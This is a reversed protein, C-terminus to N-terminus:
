GVLLHNDADLPGLQALVIENGSDDLVHAFAADGGRVFPKVVRAGAARARELGAELDDCYLVLAPAGGVQRGVHEAAAGDARLLWIGPGAVGQSGLHVTRRGPAVEDDFLVGLGFAERYFRSSADLDAVLITIRGIRFM